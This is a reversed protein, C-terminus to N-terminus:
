LNLYGTGKCKTCVVSITGGLATAVDRGTGNCQTCHEGLTTSIVDNVKSESKNLLNQLVKTTQFHFNSKHELFSIANAIALKEEKSIRVMKSTMSFSLM